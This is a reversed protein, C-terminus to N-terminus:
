EILGDEELLTLLMGTTTASLKKCKMGNEQPGLRDLVKKCQTSGFRDLFRERLESAIDKSMQIDAGQETRGYLFGLAIMAGAFAGCLEEKTNAIGQQFVSAANPIGPFSEGFFDEVITKLVAEACHFGTNHYDFAKQEFNKFDM